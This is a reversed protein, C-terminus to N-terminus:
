FYTQEIWDMQRQIKFFINTYYITQYSNIKKRILEWDILQSRHYFIKRFINFFYINKRFDLLKRSSTGQFANEMRNSLLQLFERFLFLDLDLIGLHVLSECLKWYTNEFIWDFLERFIFVPKPYIKNM